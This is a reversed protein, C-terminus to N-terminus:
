ITATVGLERLMELDDLTREVQEIDIADAARAPRDPQSPARFLLVAILVLCAAALPMVPRLSWPTVPELLRRWWARGRDAEIRQYLRRNFDPSIAPAEWADLASWVAQQANVAQRCAACLDLHREFAAAAEPALTRRVYDVAV